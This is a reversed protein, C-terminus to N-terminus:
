GGLATALRPPDVPIFTDPRQWVRNDMSLPLYLGRAIGRTRDGDHEWGEAEALMTLQSSLPSGAVFRQTWKDVHDMAALHAKKSGNCRRDALVLNHVGDDPFRAWPVFHDVEPVDIRQECYFCRNDQIERLGSRVAKTPTRPRGFLFDELEAEEFRNFRAVLATWERQILPRLLPALAVLREGANGVFLIRNDFGDPDMDARTRVARDDHQFAVRYLFEDVGSGLRQLRPLPMEALKFEVHRLLKAYGDPDLRRAQRCNLAAAVNLRLRYERLRTIIEAQGSSNQKLVEQRTPHELSQSWYLDIVKEALERTTVMGPAAGQAGTKEVCLDMLGLLVAYKYTATTLGEALLTMLKQAFGLLGPDTSAATSSNQAPM